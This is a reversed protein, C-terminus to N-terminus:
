KRGRKAPLGPQDLYMVQVECGTYEDHDMARVVSEELGKDCRLAELAAQAGSGV